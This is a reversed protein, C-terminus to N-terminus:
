RLMISDPGRVEFWETVGLAQSLVNSVTAKNLKIEAPMVANLGKVGSSWTLDKWVGVGYPGCRLHTFVFVEWAGGALRYCGEVFSMDETMILDFTIEAKM